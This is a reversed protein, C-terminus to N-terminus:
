AKLHAPNNIGAEDLRHRDWGAFHLTDSALAQPPEGLLSGLKPNRRDPAGKPSRAAKAFTPRDIAKAPSLGPWLGPFSFGKHVYLTMANESFDVLASLAGGSWM